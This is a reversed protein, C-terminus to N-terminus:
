SGKKDSKNKANNFKEKLDNIMNNQNLFENKRNEVDSMEDCTLEKILTFGSPSSQGVYGEDGMKIVIISSDKSVNIKELISVYNYSGMKVFSTKGLKVAVFFLLLVIPIVFILNVIYQM